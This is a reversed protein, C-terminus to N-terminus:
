TQWRILPEASLPSTQPFIFNNLILFAYGGIARYLIAFALSFTVSLKLTLIWSEPSKWYDLVTSLTRETTPSVLKSTLRELSSVPGRGNHPALTNPLAYLRYLGFFVGLAMGYLVLYIISENLQTRTFKLEKGLTLTLPIFSPRTILVVGFLAIVGVLGNLVLEFLNESSLPALVRRCFNLRCDDTVSFTRIQRWHPLALALVLLGSGLALNLVYM